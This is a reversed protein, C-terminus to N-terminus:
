SWLWVGGALAVLANTTAHALIADGLNGRRYLALAYLAGCVTAALLDDHMAGFLVSSVVFSMWSFQGLRVTQFDAAILRRTLYGRFALEEAVPVTLVTGLVRFTLWVAAAGGPLAALEERLASGAEGAAFLWTGVVWVVFAAGGTAVASWSWTPRFERYQRRCAWLAAAAAVVRLPYLLDVDGSQLAGSAMATAVIALLPAVYAFTPNPSRDVAGARDRACFSITGALWTFGLALSCFLLWGAYTHFGGFAVEPSLWTGIAILAVLRLANAAWAAVVAIPLLLLAQPFRLTPRAFWLYASMFVLMLGIGEYGACRPHIEILFRSTGIVFEGPGVVVDHTLWGLAQRVAVLTAHRLPDWWAETLLGAGWAAVGLLLGGPLLITARQALPGLTERGVATAAWLVATLIGSLALALAWYGPMKSAGIEGAFVFVALRFFVAYALLHGALCWWSWRWRIAPASPGRRHVAVILLAAVMSTAITVVARGQALVAAWWQPMSDQLPEADLRVGLINVEVILLSGLIL